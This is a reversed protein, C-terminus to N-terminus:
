LTIPEVIAPEKVEEFKFLFRNRLVETKESNKHPMSELKNLEKRILAYGSNTMDSMDILITIWKYQDEYDKLQDKKLSKKGYDILLIAELIILPSLIVAIVLSALLLNSFTPNM